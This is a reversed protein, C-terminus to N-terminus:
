IQSWAVQRNGRGCANSYNVQATNNSESYVVKCHHKLYPSAALGFFTIIEEETTGSEINSVMVTSKSVPINTNDGDMREVDQVAPNWSNETVREQLLRRLVHGHCQLPHCWCGIVKGDLESIDALLDSSKLQKEYKQVADERSYDKLTFQNHWKSEELEDTARGVYVHDPHKLWEEVDEVDHLNVVRCTM